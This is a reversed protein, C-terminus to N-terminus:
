AWTAQQSHQGVMTCWVHILRALLDRACLKSTVKQGRSERGLVATCCMHEQLPSGQTHLLHHKTHKTVSPTAPQKVPWHGPAVPATVWPVRSRPGLEQTMILLPACGNCGDNSLM